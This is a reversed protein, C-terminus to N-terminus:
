ALLRKLSRRILVKSFFDATTASSRRRSAAHRAPLHRPDRLRPLGLRRPGVLEQGLLELVRQGEDVHPHEVVQHDPAAALLTLWRMTSTMRGLLTLMAMNSLTADPKMPSPFVHLDHLGQQQRLVDLARDSLPVLHAESGKM